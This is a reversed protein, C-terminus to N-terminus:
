SAWTTPLRFHTLPSVQLNQCFHDPRGNKLATLVHHLYSPGRPLEDQPQEYRHDYMGNIEERIWRRLLPPATDSDSDNGSDEDDGDVVSSWDWESETDSDSCDSSISLLDPIFESSASAFADDLETISLDSDLM